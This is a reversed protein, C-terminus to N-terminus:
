SWALRDPWDVPFLLARAEGLFQSNGVRQDRRDFEIGPQDLLPVIQERFYTEDVKDVKAAIKLPIGLRQAIEIARDPRKEPSIRGLFALYDARPHYCPKLLDPPLGHYVTAIFNAAPFRSASTIPSPSWRCKPLASISRSSIPCIRDAM